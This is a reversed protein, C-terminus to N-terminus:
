SVFYEVRGLKVINGVGSIFLLKVSSADPQTEKITESNVLWSILKKKSNHARTQSM